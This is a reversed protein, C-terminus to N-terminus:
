GLFLKGIRFITARVFQVRSNPFYPYPPRKEARRHPRRTSGDKLRHPLAHLTQHWWRPPSASAIIGAERTFKLFNFSLNGVGGGRKGAVVKVLFFVFIADRPPNPPM